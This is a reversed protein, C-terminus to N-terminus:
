EVGEFNNIMDWVKRLRSIYMQNLFSGVNKDIGLRTNKEKFSKGSAIVESNM